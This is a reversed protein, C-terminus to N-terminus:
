HTLLCHCPHEPVRLELALGPKTAMVHCLISLSRVRLILRLFIFCAKAM